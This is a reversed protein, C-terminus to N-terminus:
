NVVEKIVEDLIRALLYLAAGVFLFMGPILILSWNVHGIAFFDFVKCAILVLQLLTIFLTLLIALTKM